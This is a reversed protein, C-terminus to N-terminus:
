RIVVGDWEIYNASPTGVDAWRGGGKWGKYMGTGRQIQWTGSENFFPDKTPDLNNVVISVGRFVLSLTGKKTTLNDYGFVPTQQQGAVTKAAGEHPIIDTAGSDEIVGNLLLNFRGRFTHDSSQQGSGREKIVIASTGTAKQSAGNSALAIGALALVSLGAVGAVVRRFGKM